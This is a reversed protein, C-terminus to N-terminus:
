RGLGELGALASNPGVTMGPPAAAVKCRFSAQANRGPSRANFRYFSSVAESATAPASRRERIARDRKKPAAPEFEREGVKAERWLSPRSAPFAEPPAEEVLEPSGLAM